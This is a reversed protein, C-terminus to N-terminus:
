IGDGFEPSVPPLVWTRPYWDTGTAALCALQTAASTVVVVWQAGAGTAYVEFLSGDDAVAEVVLAAGKEGLRQVAVDHPLCEGAYAATTLAALIAAFLFAKM